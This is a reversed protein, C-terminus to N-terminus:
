QGSWPGSGHSNESAAKAQHLTEAIMRRRAKRIEQDVQSVKLQQQTPSLSRWFNLFSAAGAILLSGLIGWVVIFGVITYVVM